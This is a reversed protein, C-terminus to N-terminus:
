RAVVKQEEMNSKPAYNTMSFKGTWKLYKQFDSNLQHQKETGCFPCLFTNCTSQFAFCCAGFWTIEYLGYVLVLWGSVFGIRLWCALEPKPPSSSISTPQTLDRSSFRYAPSSLCPTPACYVKKGWLELFKGKNRV